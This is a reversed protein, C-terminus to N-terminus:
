IRRNTRWQATLQEPAILCVTYLSSCPKHWDATIAEILCLDALLRTFNTYKYRLSPFYCASFFRSIGAQKM